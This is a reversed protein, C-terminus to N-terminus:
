EQHGDKATPQHIIQVSDEKVRAGMMWNSFDPNQEMGAWLDLNIRNPRRLINPVDEDPYNEPDPTQATGNDNTAGPPLTMMTFRLDVMQEVRYVQGNDRLRKVVSIEPMLLSATANINDDEPKIFPLVASPYTFTYTLGFWTVLYELFMMAQFWNTTYIKTKVRLTVARSRFYRKVGFQDIYFGDYKNEPVPNKLITDFNIPTMVLFPLLARNILDKDENPSREPGPATQVRGKDTDITTNVAQIRELDIDAVDEVSMVAGRLNAVGAKIRQYYSDMGCTLASFTTTYYPTRNPSTAM